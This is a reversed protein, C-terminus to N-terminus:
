EEGRYLLPLPKDRGLLSLSPSSHQGLADQRALLRRFIPGGVLPPEGSTTPGIKLLSSARRSQERLKVGMPCLSTGAWTWGYDWRARVSGGQRLKGGMLGVGFFAGGLFM